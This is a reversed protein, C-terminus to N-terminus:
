PLSGAAKKAETMTNECGKEDGAADQKRAQEILGRAKDVSANNPTTSADTPKGAPPAKLGQSPNSAVTGDASATGTTSVAGSSNLRREITAIQDSCASALVPSAVLTLLLAPALARLKFTTQTSAKTMRSKGIIDSM